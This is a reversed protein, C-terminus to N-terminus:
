VLESTVLTIKEVLKASFFRRDKQGKGKFQTGYNETGLWFECILGMIKLGWGFGRVFNIEQLRVSCVITVLLYM